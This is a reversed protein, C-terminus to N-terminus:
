LNVINHNKETDKCLSIQDKPIVAMSIASPAGRLYKTKYMNM